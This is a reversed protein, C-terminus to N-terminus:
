LPRNEIVLKSEKAIMYVDQLQRLTQLVKTPSISLLRAIQVTNRKGDVLAFVTRQRFTWLLFQRPQAQMLRQPIWLHEAVLQITRM